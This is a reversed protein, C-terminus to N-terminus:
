RTQMSLGSSSTASAGAISLLRWAYLPRRSLMNAARLPEVANALCLNSFGDFLLLDFREAAARPQTNQMIPPTKQM